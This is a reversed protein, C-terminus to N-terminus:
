IIKTSPQRKSPLKFKKFEEPLLDLFQEATCSQIDYTLELQQIFATLRRPSGGAKGAAGRKPKNTAPDLYLGCAAAIVTPNGLVQQSATLTEEIDSRIGRSNAFLIRANEGHDLVALWPTRVLHKYYRLYDYKSDLIYLESRLLKWTGDANKKCISEFFYLALWNWLRHDRSIQYRDLAKLLKVLYTGLDFRNEFNYEEIKISFNLSESTSHETLLNKPAVETSGGRARELFANFGAIGADNLLRVTESM